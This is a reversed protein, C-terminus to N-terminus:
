SRTGCYVGYLGFALGVVLVICGSRVDGGLATLFALLAAGM